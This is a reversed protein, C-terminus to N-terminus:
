RSETDGATLKILSLLLNTVIGVVSVMTGYSRRVAPDKIRDRNKVFLKCLLETM